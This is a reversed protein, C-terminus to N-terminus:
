EWLLQKTSVPRPLGGAVRLANIYEQVTTDLEAGIVLPRGQAKTPLTNVIPTVNEETSGAVGGDKVLEKMRETKLRRATTEPVKKSGVRSFHRVASAIGNEAAYKGISAREEPTYDNYRIPRRLSQSTVKELLKKVSANANEVEKNSQSPVKSPMGAKAFFRYLSM